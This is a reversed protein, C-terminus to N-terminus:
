LPKGPLSLAFTCGRSSIQNLSLDGKYKKLLTSVQEMVQHLGNESLAPATNSQFVLTYHPFGAGGPGGTEEKCRIHLYQKTDKNKQQVLVQLLPAFIAEADGETGSFQPLEDCRLVINKRNEALHRRLAKQIIAYTEVCGTAPEKPKGAETSLPSFCEVTM